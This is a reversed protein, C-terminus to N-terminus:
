DSGTVELFRVSRALGDSGVMVDAQVTEDARDPSVEYGVQMMASRPLEVHVMDLDEAPALQAAGPLPLFGDATADEFASPATELTAFETTHSPASRHTEPQRDRVVFVGATLMAALGAAWAAAPVWNRRGAFPRTAPAPMAAGTHVRFAQLLRAEVRPGAQVSDMNASVARLGARLRAVVDRERRLRAACPPCEAAHPHVPSRETFDPTLKWFEQCTM